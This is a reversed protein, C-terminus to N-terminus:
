SPSSPYKQRLFVSCAHLNVLFIQQQPLFLLRMEQMLAPGRNPVQSAAIAFAVTLNLVTVALLGWGTTGAAMINLSFIQEKNEILTLIM